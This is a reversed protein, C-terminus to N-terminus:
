GGVNALRTEQSNGDTAEQQAWEALAAYYPATEVPKGDALGAILWSVTVSLNLIAWRPTGRRSVSGLLDIETPTGVTVNMAMLEGLLGPFMKLVIPELSTVNHPAATTLIPADRECIRLVADRLAVRNENILLALRHPTFGLEQFELGLQFLFADGISFNAKRGVGARTIGYSSRQLYRLRARFAVEGDKPVFHMHQLATEIQGFGLKM